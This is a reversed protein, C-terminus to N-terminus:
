IWDHTARNRVLVPAELAPAPAHIWAHRLLPPLPETYSCEVCALRIERNLEAAVLLAHEKRNGCTLPRLRPNANWHSVNAIIDATTM